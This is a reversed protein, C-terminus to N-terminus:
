GGGQMFGWIIMYIGYITGASFFTVDFPIKKVTPKHVVGNTSMGFGVPHAVRKM